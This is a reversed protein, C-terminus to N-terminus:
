VRGTGGDDCGRPGRARSDGGTSGVCAKCRNGTCRGYMLDARGDEGNACENARENKEQSHYGGGELLTRPSVRTRKTIKKMGPIYVRRDTRPFWIRTKNPYVTSRIEHQLGHPDLQSTQVCM